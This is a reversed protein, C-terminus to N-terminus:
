DSQYVGVRELDGVALVRPYIPTRNSLGFVRRRFELSVPEVAHVSGGVMVQEAQPDDYELQEHLSRMWEIAPIDPPAIRGLPFLPYRRPVEYIASAAPNGVFRRWEGQGPIRKMGIQSFAEDLAEIGAMVVGPVPRGSDFPALGDLAGDPVQDRAVPIRMMLIEVM